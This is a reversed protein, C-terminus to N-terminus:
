PLFNKKIQTKTKSQDFNEGFGNEIEFLPITNEGFGNETESCPFEKKEREKLLFLKIRRKYNQWYKM